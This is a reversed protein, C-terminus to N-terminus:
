AQGMKKIPTLKVGMFEIENIIRLLFLKFKTLLLKLKKKFFPHNQVQNITELTEIHFAQCPQQHKVFNRNSYFIAM